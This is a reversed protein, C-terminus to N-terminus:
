ECCFIGALLLCGPLAALYSNSMVQEAFKGQYLHLEYAMNTVM